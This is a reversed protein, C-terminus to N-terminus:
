QVVFWYGIHSLAAARMPAPSVCWLRRVQTIGATKGLFTTASRGVLTCCGGCSLQPIGCEPEGGSKTRVKDVM